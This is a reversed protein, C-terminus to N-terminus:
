KDECEPCGSKPGHLLHAEEWDDRRDLAMAWPIAIMFALALMAVFFTLGNM